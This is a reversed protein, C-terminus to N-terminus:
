NCRNRVLLSFNGQTTKVGGPNPMKDGQLIASNLKGCIDKKTLNKPMTLKYAGALISLEHKTFTTELYGNNGMVESQLRRHSKLKNETNDAQIDKFSYQLNKKSKEKSIKVQKRHTEEKKLKLKRIYDARFHKSSMMLYKRVVESFLSMVSPDLDDDFDSCFMDQWLLILSTNQLIQLKIFDYFNSGYLNLNHVTELQRLQLDLEMFFHFACDKIYTLGGRLNQKRKTESLTESIDSNQLLNEETDTLRELLKVEADLKNVMQQTSLKFLNRKVMRKKRNKLTAICWGGIYRIKGKGAASNVFTTGVSKAATEKAKVKIEKVSTETIMERLYQSLGYVARYESTKPTSSNFMEQVYKKYQQGSMFLNFDRYLSSTHKNEVSGTNPINNEKIQNFSKLLRQILLTTRTKQAILTDYVTNLEKQENTIPNIYKLNRITQQYDTNLTTDSDLSDLEEIVSELVEAEELDLQVTEDMQEIDEENIEDIQKPIKEGDTDRGLNKNDDFQSELEVQLGKDTKEKTVTSCCSLDAKLSAAETEYFDQIVSPHPRLITPSFNKIRLGKKSKARGVAVGVQGSNQMNRCDIELRDFAMGQAKHVTFAHALKLPFQLRYAVDMGKEKNYVSFLHRKIYENRHLSPFYVTVTENNFDVVKGRLGNVLQSSLNVTLMVPSGRKLHLVQPANCDELYKKQGSDQARYVATEGSFHLWIINIYKIYVCTHKYLRDKVILRKM